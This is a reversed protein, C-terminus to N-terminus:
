WSTWGGDVVLNAGTVFSAASSALFVVPGGIESGQGIRRLPVKVSLREIFGPENAQVKPAPFPGPSISNVRINECGFECASYRSWQILAAKAAGYFPSNTELESDYIRQDPSVMGYMSAINIVSADGCEEVAQRMNQLASKLLNHAATVSIDFSTHYDKASVTKINGAGGAYANNILGHLPRSAITQFYAEVEIPNRVDFIAAETSFGAANMRKSLEEGRLSSRSNILVRAGAQALAIVMASGLHGTAGTVLVNKNALSFIQHSDNMDITLEM